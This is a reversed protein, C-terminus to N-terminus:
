VLPKEMLWGDRGDEYYGPVLRVKTFGYKRYFRLAGRNTARVTLRLKRIGARKLRYLLRDMLASAVGARRSQPNVAISVLEAGARTRCGLIYGAMEGKGVAVLFFEGCKRAYAAFLNRDYADRRFSAKEIALIRDLDAPRMPRVSFPPFVMTNEMKLCFAPM